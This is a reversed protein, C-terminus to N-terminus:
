RSVVRGSDAVRDAGSVGDDSPWRRVRWSSRPAARETSSRSGARCRDRGRDNGGAGCRTGPYDPRWLLQTQESPASWARESGREPTSIAEWATCAPEIGTMLEM